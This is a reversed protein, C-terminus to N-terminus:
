AVEETMQGSSEIRQLVEHTLEMYDRSRDSDYTYVLEKCAMCERYSTYDRIQTDFMLSPYHEELVTSLERELVGRPRTRCMLFGLLRLEPNLDPDSAYRLFEPTYQLLRRVDASSPQTPILLWKAAMLANQTRLDSEPACDIIITDYSSLVPELARRLRRESAPVGVLKLGLQGLNLSGPVLELGMITTSIVADALDVKRLLVDEITHEYDEQELWMTADLAADLDILLVRHGLRALGGALHVATTTKGAGGKRSSVAIVHAGPSIDPNSTRTLQTLIADITTGLIRAMSTYHTPKKYKGTWVKSIVSREVNMRQSLIEQTLGRSQALNKLQAGLEQASVSNFM